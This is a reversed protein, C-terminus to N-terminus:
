EEQLLVMSGGSDGQTITVSLKRSDKTFNLVAMSEGMDTNEGATWGNEPLAKKYYDALDSVSDPSKFTILKGLISKETANDPIPVDTSPKQAECEAPLKLAPLENIQDVSYDWKVTGDVNFLGAAKGTAEGTYKVVYKADQALWFTATGQSFTGFGLGTNSVKYEDTKVGNVTVGKKVLKADDMSGLLDSPKYVEYNSSASDSSSFMTCGPKGDSGTSFMYTAEQIQYVEFASGADGSSSSDAFVQTGGIRMHQENAKRNIEQLIDFSGSKPNGNEDKGDVSMTFTMHYSDLSALGEDLSSFGGSEDSSSSDSSSDSGTSSDSETSGSDDAPALTATTDDSGSSTSGSITKSAGFSCALSAMMLVTVAIWVPRLKQAM